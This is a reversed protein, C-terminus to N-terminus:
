RITWSSLRLDNEINLHIVAGPAAVINGTRYTQNSALPSAVLRLDTRATFLDPITLEVTSAGTVEGIRRRQGRIEAYITVQSWNRNAVHITIPGPDYAEADDGGRRLLTCGSLLLALLILSAARTTPSRHSM